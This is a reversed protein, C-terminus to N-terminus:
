GVCERLRLLNDTWVDDKRTRLYHNGRASTAGYVFAVNGAADRVYAVGDKNVIWDYMVERTSEGSSQNQENLWGFSEIAVYPNEHNGNDKKICTIRVSM